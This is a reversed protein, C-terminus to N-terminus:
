CAGGKLTIWLNIVSGLWFCSAGIFFLWAVVTPTM